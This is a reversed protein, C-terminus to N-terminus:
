PALHRRLLLIAAPAGLATVVLGVPLEAPAVAERALLDATTLLVAGILMALPLVRAADAGGLLARALHPAVLAIFGIPGCSAVVPATLGIATLLLLLRLRFVNVGLGAAMEEGLRLVDLARSFLLAAPLLIATLVLLRLLDSMGRGILSGILFAHITRLQFENGLVIVLVIMASFLAALAAGILIMRVPDRSLRQAGLVVVGAGLGGALAFGPLATPAAHLFVIGIAVALSAGSAVGLLGPDALDNRLAGQLLVGAAALSAGALAALGARPLRVDWVLIAAFSEGRPDALAALAETWPLPVIGRTLSLLLTLALVGCLGGLLTAFPLRARSPAAALGQM